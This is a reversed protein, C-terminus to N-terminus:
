GRLYIYKELHNKKILSEIDAKLDGIGIMNIIFKVERAKLYNAVKIIQEPHKFKIFRGVWLIDIVEDSKKAILQDIDYELVQPFYGWKYMKNPYAMFLNMD